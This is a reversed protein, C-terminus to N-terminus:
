LKDRLAATVSIIGRLGCQPATFHLQSWFAQKLKFASISYSGHQQVPHPYYTRPSSESFSLLVPAAMDQVDEGGGMRSM